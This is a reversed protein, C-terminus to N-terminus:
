DWPFRAPTSASFSEPLVLELSAQRSGAEAKLTVSRILFEFPSYIMADPAELILRTGPQWVKGAPDRWTSLQLSYTAVNAIMRGVKASVSERLEARTADDSDFTYPRVVGSLRPNKVTYKAGPVGATAGTMGTIHSYYEQPSITPTISVVPSVGQKLIAVPAAPLAAATPSDFVLHGLENSAILLGRQKALDTLFELVKKGPECAVREFRGGFSANFIVTVGFPAALKQAIQYLNQNNFELPFTSASPTCDNLVGPTSYCTVRVTKADSLVPAVDVMTGAFLPADDLMVTVPSYSLPKFLDRFGPADAEFPADFEAASLEDMSMNVSISNWFRFRTGLITLALEDAM